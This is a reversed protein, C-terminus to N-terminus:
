ILSYQFTINFLITVAIITIDSSFLFITDNSVICNTLFTQDISGVGIANPTIVNIPLTFQITGATGTSFDVITSGTCSVNVINGVQSYYATGFSSGSCAGTENLLNPTYIGSSTPTILYGM